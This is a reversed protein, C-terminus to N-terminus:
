HTLPTGTYPQESSVQVVRRWADAQGHCPDLKLQSQFRNPQSNTHQQQIHSGRIAFTNKTRSEWERDEVQGTDGADPEISLSEFVVTSASIVADVVDPVFGVPQLGATPQDGRGAARAHDEDAGDSHGCPVASHLDVTHVPVVVGVAVVFPM